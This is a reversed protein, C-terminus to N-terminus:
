EDPLGDLQSSLGKMLAQEAEDRARTLDDDDPGRGSAATFVPPETSATFTRSPGDRWAAVATLGVCVFDAERATQYRDLTESVKM